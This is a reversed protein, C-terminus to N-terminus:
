PNPNPASPRCRVPMERSAAPTTEGVGDAPETQQRYAALATFMRHSAAAYGQRGPEWLKLDDAADALQDALAKPVVEVPKLPPGMARLPYPYSRCPGPTVSRFGCECVYLTWTV